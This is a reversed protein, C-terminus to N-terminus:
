IRLVPMIAIEGAIAQHRRGGDPGNRWLFMCIKERPRKWANQRIADSEKPVNSAWLVEAMMITVALQNQKVVNTTVSNTQVERENDNLGIISSAIAGQDFTCLIAAQQDENATANMQGTNLVILAFMFALLILAMCFVARPKTM